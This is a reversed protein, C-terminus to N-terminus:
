SSDPASDWQSKVAAISAGLALGASLLTLALGWGVSSRSLGFGDSNTARAKWFAVLLLVGSTATAWGAAVSSRLRTLGLALIVLGLVLTVMGPEVLAGRDSTGTLVMQGGTQFEIVEWPGFAGVIVGTAGVLLLRPAVASVRSRRGDTLGGAIDAM